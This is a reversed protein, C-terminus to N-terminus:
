PAARPGRRAPDVALTEDGDDDHGQARVERHLKKGKKGRKHKQQPEKSKSGEAPTDDVCKGKKDEFIAGVAEEGSSFSAENDFLKTSNVPPSRGLERVLDRCTTGKLFTHVIESQAVSPLETYCKSFRRIFDWLSEGPKQTCVRLDWSNGPRVYTGQFNGVFTRVRDDWNHNQSPPLHELWTRASDALHLLLNRIIVEDTTAGGLQCALRYDNLWVRPDMEGTCKDISTPQRFRQPFSATHIERSFVRPGPPESTPSRDERSDYHGGWRPHYGVMARTEANGTRRANIVNRADGDQAQGHTNTIREKAPMRGQNAPQRTVGGTHISAEHGQAGGDDRASGEQRIHSASSEAQQVVAQEILAQAERHLNQAEPTSSTPMARLLTATAILKQSALPPMNPNNVDFDTNIRDRV